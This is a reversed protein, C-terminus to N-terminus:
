VGAPYAREPELGGLWARELLGRAEWATVQAFDEYFQSIAFFQEPRAPCVVQEAERNLQELLLSPAVPVAIVVALAGETRAAAMAARMTAGTGLGDDILVVSRGELKPRERSGRLERECRELEALTTQAARELDAETIHLSDIMDRNEVRVGGSALAGFTVEPHAPMRMKRVGMLELPAGLANAVEYAIPVGGRPLALVVLDERRDYARLAKALVKGAEARNAYPLHANGPQNEVSRRVAENLQDHIGRM